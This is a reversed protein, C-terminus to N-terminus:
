FLVFPLATAFYNTALAELSDVTTNVRTTFTGNVQPHTSPPLLYLVFVVRLFVACRLM